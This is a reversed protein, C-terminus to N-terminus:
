IWGSLFSFLSSVFRFINEGLTFTNYRRAGTYVTVGGCMCLWVCGCAVATSRRLQRIVASPPPRQFLTSPPCLPALCCASFRECLCKVFDRQLGKLQRCFFFLLSPCASCFSTFTISSFLPSLYLWEAHMHVHTHIHKLLKGPVDILLSIFSCRRPRPAPREISVCM